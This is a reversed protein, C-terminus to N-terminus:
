DDSETRVRTSLVLERGITILVQDVLGLSMGANGTLFKSMHKPTIGVDECVSSQTRGSAAIEARVLSALDDYSSM